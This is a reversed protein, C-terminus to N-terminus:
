QVEKKIVVANDMAYSLLALSLTCTSIQDYLSSSVYEDVDDIAAGYGKLVSYLHRIDRSINQIDSMEISYTTKVESM